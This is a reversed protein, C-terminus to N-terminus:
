FAITPSSTIPVREPNTDVKDSANVAVVALGVVLVVERANAM